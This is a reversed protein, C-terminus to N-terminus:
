LILDQVRIPVGKIQYSPPTQIKTSSFAVFSQQIIHHRKTHAPIFVFILSDPECLCLQCLYALHRQGLNQALIHVDLGVNLPRCEILGAVEQSYFQQGCLFLYSQYILNYTRLTTLVLSTNAQSTFGPIETSLFWCPLPVCQKWRWLLLHLCSTERLTQYTSRSSGCTTDNWFVITSLNTCRSCV